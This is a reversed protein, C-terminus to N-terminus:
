SWNKKLWEPIRKRSYDLMKYIIIFKKYPLAPRDSAIDTLRDRLNGSACISLWQLETLMYTQMNLKTM